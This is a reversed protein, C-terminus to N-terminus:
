LARFEFHHGSPRIMEVAAQAAPRREWEQQPENV